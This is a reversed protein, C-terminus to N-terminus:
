TKQLATASSSVAQGGNNVIADWLCAMIAIKNTQTTMDEETGYEQQVSNYKLTPPEHKHLLRPLAAM